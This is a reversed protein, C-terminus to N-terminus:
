CARASGPSLPTAPPLLQAAAACWPQTAGALTDFPIMVCAATAGVLTDGTAIGGPAASLTLATEGNVSEGARNFLDTTDKTDLTLYEKYTNKFIASGSQNTRFNAFYM